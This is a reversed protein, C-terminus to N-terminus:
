RFLISSSVVLRSITGQLKLLLPSLCLGFASPCSCQNVIEWDLHVSFMPLNILEEGLDQHPMSIKVIVKLISVHFDSQRSTAFGLCMTCLRQSRLFSKSVPCPHVNFAAYWKSRIHPKKPSHFDSESLRAIHIHMKGEMLLFFQFM